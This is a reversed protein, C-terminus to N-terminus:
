KDDVWVNEYFRLRAERERQKDRLQVIIEETFPLQQLFAAKDVADMM